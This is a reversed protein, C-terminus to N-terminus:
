QCLEPLRYTYNRYLTFTAQLPIFGNGALKRRWSSRLPAQATLAFRGTPSQPTLGAPTPHIKCIIGLPYQPVEWRMYSWPAAKPANGEGLLSARRTSM